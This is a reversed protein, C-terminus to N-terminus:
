TWTNSLWISVLAQFWARQCCQSSSNKFLFVIM